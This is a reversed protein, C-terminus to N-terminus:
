PAVSRRRASPHFHVPFTSSGGGAWVVKANDRRDGFLYVAGIEVWEGAQLLEDGAKAEALPVRTYTVTESM